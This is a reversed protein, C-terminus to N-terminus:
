LSLVNMGDVNFIDGNSRIRQSRYEYGVYGFLRDDIIPYSISTSYKWTDYYGDHSQLKIKWGDINAKVLADLYDIKSYSILGQLRFNGIWIRNGYAANYGNLIITDTTDIRQRTAGASLTGLDGIKVNLDLLRSQRTSM